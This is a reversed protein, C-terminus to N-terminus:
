LPMVQGSPWVTVYQQHATATETLVIQTAAGPNLMLGRTNFEFHSGVGTSFQVGTPLTRTKIAPPNIVWIGGVLRMRYEVYTTAGTIDFRFHDGKTLADARTSRLDSLLQQQATWLAYKNRQFQPLAIGMVIAMLGVTVLLEILTFGRDNGHRKRGGLSAAEDRVRRVARELVGSVAEHNIANM